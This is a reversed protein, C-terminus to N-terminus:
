TTERYKSYSQAPEFTIVLHGVQDEAMDIGRSIQEKTGPVLTSLLAQYTGGAMVTWMLDPACAEKPGKEHGPRM